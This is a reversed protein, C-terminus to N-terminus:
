SKKQAFTGMEKSFAFYSVKLSTLASLGIYFLVFLPILAFFAMFLGPSLFSYVEFIPRGSTSNAASGAARKFETHQYATYSDDEPTWPDLANTPSTYYIVTYAHGAPLNSLVAHLFNDATTLKQM